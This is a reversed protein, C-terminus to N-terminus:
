SYEEIIQLDPFRVKAITGWASGLVCTKMDPSVAVSWVKEDEWRFTKLIKGTKIEWLIIESYTEEGSIGEIFGASLVYTGDVSIDMDRFDGRHGTFRYVEKDKQNDFIKIIGDMSAVLKYKGNPTHKISYIYSSQGAPIIL